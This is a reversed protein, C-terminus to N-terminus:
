SETNPLMKSSEYRGIFLGLAIILPVNVFDTYGMSFLTKVLLVMMALYAGLQLVTDNKMGKIYKFLYVFFVLYIIVGLLGNDTLLELWDNHATNGWVNVTQMLGYGFVKHFIDADLWHQWLMVYAVERTGINGERTDDIRDMLFENQLSYYYMFAAIGVVLAILLFQRFPSVKTRRLLYIATFGLAVILSVIAGRKAANLVLAILAIAIVGALLRWKKFLHPMFPIIAIICYAANNQFMDRASDEQLVRLSYFYRMVAAGILVLGLIIIYRDSIKTWKSFYYVAFFSLFVFCINKYQGFTTARGIAEYASGYVEKPSIIYAVTLLIFLVAWTGVFRPNSAHQTFTKFFGLVGIILFLLLLGQTFMSGSGYLIGQLSYIIYLVLTFTLWTRNIKM